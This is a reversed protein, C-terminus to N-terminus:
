FWSFMPTSLSLLPTFIQLSVKFYSLYRTSLGRSLKLRESKNLSSPTLPTTYASPKAPPDGGSSRSTHTAEVFGLLVCEAM